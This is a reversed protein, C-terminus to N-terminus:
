GSLAAFFAKGSVWAATGACVVGNLFVEMPWSLSLQLLGQLGFFVLVTPILSLVLGVMWLTLWRSVRRGQRRLLRSQAVGALGCGGITFIIPEVPGPINGMIGAAELPLIVLALLAFGIVTAVVWHTQRTQGSRLVAAQAFGFVVGAVALMIPIQAIALLLSGSAPEIDTQWHKDFDFGHDFLWGTQLYAFFALGFGIANLIVWRLLPRHRTTISRPDRTKLRLKRM